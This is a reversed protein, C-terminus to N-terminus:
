GVVRTSDYLTMTGVPAHGRSGYVFVDERIRYTGSPIKPILIYWTRGVKNTGAIGEYPTVDKAEAPTSGLVLLYMTRWGYATEVELTAYSEASYEGTFGM